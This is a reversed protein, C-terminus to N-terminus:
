KPDGSLWHEDLWAQEATLADSRKSFPGLRPGSVPSLDAFWRGKSDPEVHSGRSISLSGLTHVTIIHLGETSSAGTLSVLDANDVNTAFMSLGVAWWALARKGLFWDETTRVGRALYLGFAIVGGNLVMVVLWDLITM